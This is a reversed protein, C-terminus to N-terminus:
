VPTVTVTISRSVTTQLHACPLLPGRVKDAYYLPGTGNLAVGPMTMTVLRRRLVQGVFDAFDAFGTLTPDGSIIVTGGELLRVSHTHCNAGSTNDTRTPGSPQQV